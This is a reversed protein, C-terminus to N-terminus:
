TCFVRVLGLIMLTEDWRMTADPEYNLMKNDLDSGPLSSARWAGRSIFIQLCRLSTVQNGGDRHAISLCLSYFPCKTWFAPFCIATVPGYFDQFKLQAYALEKFPEKQSEQVSEGHRKTKGEPSGYGLHTMRTQLLLGTHLKRAKEPQTRSVFPQPDWLGTKIKFSWKEM